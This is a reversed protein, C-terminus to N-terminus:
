RRKQPNPRSTIAKKCIQKIHRESRNSSQKLNAPIGEWPNLSKLGLPPHVFAKEPLFCPHHNATMKFSSLIMSVSRHEPRLIISSLSPHCLIINSSPHHYIISPHDISAQHTIPHDISSSPHDISSKPHDISSRHM